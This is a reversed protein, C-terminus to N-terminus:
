GPAALSYSIIRRVPKGDACELSQVENAGTQEIQSVHGWRYVGGHKLFQTLLARCCKDARLFGAKEDHYISVIDDYNVHPFQRHADNISVLSVPLGYQECVPLADLVFQPAENPFMWWVGVQEFLNVEELAQLHSWDRLSEDVLRIYLHRDGYLARILRLPGRCGIDHGM